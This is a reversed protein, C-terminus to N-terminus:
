PRKCLIKRVAETSTAIRSTNPTEGSRRRDSFNSGEVTPSSNFPPPFSSNMRQRPSRRKVGRQLCTKVERRNKLLLARNELGAARPTLLCVDIIRSTFIRGHKLDSKPQPLTPLCKFIGSIMVSAELGQSWSKVTNTNDM